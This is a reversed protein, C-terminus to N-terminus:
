AATGNADNNSRRSTFSGGSSGLSAALISTDLPSSFSVSGVNRVAGRGSQLATVGENADDASGMSHLLPPETTGGSSSGSPPLLPETDPSSSIGEPLSSCFSRRCWTIIPPAVLFMPIVAMALDMAEWGFLGDPDDAEAVVLSQLLQVLGAITSALGNISGFTRFGFVAASYSIFTSFCFQRAVPFLVFLTVYSPVSAVLFLGGYACSIVTTVVFSLNFRSLIFGSVGAVTCIMVPLFGLPLIISFVDALMEATGKDEFFYAVQPGMTTMVLGQTFNHITFFALLYAFETSCLQQLFSRESLPPASAWFAATAKDRAEDENDEGLAEEQQQQQQQQEGEPALGYPRDPWLLLATVLTFVGCAAYITFLEASGLGLSENAVKFIYFVGTSLEFLCIMFSIVSTSHSPFLNSFQFTSMQIFPGSAGLLFYAAGQLAVSQKDCWGMMLSGAVAM